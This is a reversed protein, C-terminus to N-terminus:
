VPYILSNPILESDFVCLKERFRLRDGDMVVTDLYRGVNFVESHENQKTRFVAYNAQTRVADAEVGRIFLGGVLHRQYYPQHYLTTTIGYVRDRLMGRSEAMMTSLPLDREFNERPVVRYFCAETFLDIWDDYRAEDLCAAYRAYLDELALRLEIGALM